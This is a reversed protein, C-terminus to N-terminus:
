HCAYISTIVSSITSHRFLIWGSSKFKPIFFKNHQKYWKQQVSLKAQKRDVKYFQL